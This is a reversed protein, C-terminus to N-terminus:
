PIDKASNNAQSEIAQCNASNAERIIEFIEEESNVAARKEVTRRGLAQPLRPLAKITGMMGLGDLTLPAYSFRFLHFLM